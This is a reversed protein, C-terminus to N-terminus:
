CRGVDIVGSNLRMMEETIESMTYVVAILVYFKGTSGFNWRM